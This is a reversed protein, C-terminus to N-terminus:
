PPDITEQVRPRVNAAPDTGGLSYSTLKYYAEKQCALDERLCSAEQKPCSLTSRNDQQEHVIYEIQLANPAVNTFM